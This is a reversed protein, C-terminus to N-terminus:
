IEKKKECNRSKNPEMRVERLALKLEKHTIVTTGIREVSLGAAFNALEVAFHLEVGAALALGLTAIVTDGAGTVDYVSRPWAPIRFPIEGQQYLVMGNEGETVLVSDVGCEDLLIAGAERPNDKEGIGKTAQIAEFANPTILSAGRYSSFDFGKPDVIIPINERRAAEISVSLFAKNLFLGKAYDSIIVAKVRSILAFIQNTLLKTTEENLPVAEEEDVRVVHQQHAIIRTKTTTLRDNVIAILGTEVNQTELVEKLRKGTEDDGITGVLLPEGGLAVVNCAVNAAGGPKIEEYEKRVVPIPAEPSIRTAKGFWYRDLMLDGIVLVPKKEFSDVLRLPDDPLAQRKKTNKGHIRSFGDMV